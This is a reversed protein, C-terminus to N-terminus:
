IVCFNCPQMFKQLTSLSSLHENCKTISHLKEEGKWTHILLCIKDAKIEAMSSPICSLVSKALLNISFAPFFHIKNLHYSLHITRSTKEDIERDSRFDLSNQHQQKWLICFLDSSKYCFIHRFYLTNYYCALPVASASKKERSVTVPDLPIAHLNPKLFLNKALPHNPM